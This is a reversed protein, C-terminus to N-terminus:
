SVLGRSELTRSSEFREYTEDPLRGASFPSRGLRYKASKTSNSFMSGASGASRRSLAATAEYCIMLATILYATAVFVHLWFLSAGGVRLYYYLIAPVGIVVVHTFIIKDWGLKRKVPGRGNLMAPGGLPKPEVPNVGGGM